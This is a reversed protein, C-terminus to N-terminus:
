PMQDKGSLAVDRMTVSRLRSCLLSSPMPEMWSLEKPEDGALSEMFTGLPSAPPVLFGYSVMGQKLRLVRSRGQKVLHSAVTTPLAVFWPGKRALEITYLLVSDRSWLVQGLPQHMWGGPGM